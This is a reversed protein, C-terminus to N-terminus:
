TENIIRKIKYKRLFKNFNKIEVLQYLKISNNQPTYEKILRIDTTTLWVGFCGFEEYSINEDIDVKLIDRFGNHYHLYEKIKELDYM